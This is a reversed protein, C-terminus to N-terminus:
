DLLQHIFNDDLHYNDQLNKAIAKDSVGSNRLQTIYKFLVIM